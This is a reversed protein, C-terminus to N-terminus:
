LGQRAVQRPRRGLSVAHARDLQRGRHDPAGGRAGRDAAARHREQPGRRRQDRRRRDPEHRAAQSRQSARCRPRLRRALPPRDGPKETPLAATAATEGAVPEVAKARADQADPAGRVGARIDRASAGADASEGCGSFRSPPARCRSSSPAPGPSSCCVVACSAGCYASAIVSRHRVNPSRPWAHVVLGHGIGVGGVDALAELEQTDLVLEGARDAEVVVGLVHGVELALERVSSAAQTPARTVSIATVRARRRPRWCPQAGRRRAGRPLRAPAALQAVVFVSSAAMAAGAIMPNLLGAAALPLAAVNYAFAWFLNGKITALTRRSLRLADAAVRLDGTVLTLDSAEIAVDTGTGIAMGLDAQALAPADNVGDGVMAVVRGQAQLERVVDAKDAPLVEAIVDDVGVRARSRARRRARQRRHAPDHAPRARAAAARGRAVDAEPRRRRRVAGAGRRGLERRDGHPGDAEAEVRASSSSRRCRSRRTPARWCRRAGPSSRAARSRGRSAWAPTARSTRSPRRRARGRARAGRGRDRARDSARLREAARRRAM